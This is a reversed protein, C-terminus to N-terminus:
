EPPIESFIKNLPVGQKKRYFYSVGYIAFGVIITIPVSAYALYQLLVGGPVAPTIAPTVTEYGFFINVIVGVIGILSIV